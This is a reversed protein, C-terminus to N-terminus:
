FMSFMTLKQDNPQFNRIKENFVLNEPLKETEENKEPKELTSSETKEIESSSNLENQGEIRDSFWFNSLKSKRWCIKLKRIQSSVIFNESISIRIKKSTSCIM